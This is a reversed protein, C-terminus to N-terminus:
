KVGIYVDIDANNLDFNKYVELDYRYSRKLDSQWISQWTKVLCEPFKGQAKVITYDSTPIIKAVLGLPVEELSNVECCIMYNYPQTYDGEYDSYLVLVTNNKKNPIKDFINELRFREWLQSIDKSAQGKVNTTKIQIGIVKLADRTERPHKTM